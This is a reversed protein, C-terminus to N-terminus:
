AIRVIGARGIAIRATGAGAFCGGFNIRFVTPTGSGPIVIPRSKAVYTFSEPYPGDTATSYANEYVFFNTTGDNYQLYFQMGSLNAAATLAAGGAGSANLEAVIIYTGGQVASAHMSPFRAEFSDGAATATIEMIFDQGKGDARAAVSAVMTPTGGRAFTISGTPMNGSVGTGTATQSGTMLPNVMVQTIASDYAITAANSAPLFDIAKPVISNIWAAVPKAEVYGGVNGEHVGPSDRFYNTTSEINSSTPNLMPNCLEIFEVGPTSAAYNRILKNLNDLERCKAVTSAAFAPFPISCAVPTIGAALARKYMTILKPMTVAATAGNTIIDNFGSNIICYKPALPIVGPATTVASSQSGIGGFGAGATANGFRTLMDDVAEGNVGANGVLTLKQRAMGNGLTFWRPRGTIATTSQDYCQQTRSDGIIVATACAAANRASAYPL